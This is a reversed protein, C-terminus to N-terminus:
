AVNMEYPYFRSQDDDWNQRLGLATIDWDPRVRQTVDRLGHWIDAPSPRGWFWYGNYAKFIKLGPELILTHPIMPDHVPDTYEQIDLDRQITRDPDSLFPWHAGVGNRFENTAMMDDTSVTVLKAYGVVFKPYLEAMTLHQQHEKPCFGGRSPILVMPDIGQLDSLRQMDGAQNPLEYDPFTGGPKIDDRM